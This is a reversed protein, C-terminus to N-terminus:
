SKSLWSETSRFMLRRIVTVFTWKLLKSKYWNTFQVYQTTIVFLVTIHVEVGVYRPQMSSLVHPNKKIRPITYIILSM